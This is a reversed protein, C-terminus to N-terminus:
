PPRGLAEMIAGRMDALADLARRLEDQEVADGANMHRAIQNVNSGIKGLEGMLRAVAVVDVSPQRSRRKPMHQNLCQVRVMEGITLGYEDCRKHLADHEEQTLRLAVLRKRQRNESGSSM